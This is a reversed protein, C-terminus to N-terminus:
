GGFSRVASGSLRLAKPLIPDMPIRQQSIYGPHGYGHCARPKLRWDAQPEICLQLLTIGWGQSRSLAGGVVKELECVMSGLAVAM